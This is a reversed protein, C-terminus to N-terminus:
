LIHLLTRQQHFIRANMDPAGSLVSVWLIWWTSESAFRCFCVLGLFMCLTHSAQCTELLFMAVVLQWLRNLFIYSGMPKALITFFTVFYFGDAAMYQSIILKIRYFLFLQFHCVGHGISVLLIVFWEWIVIIYNACESTVTLLFPLTFFINNTIVMQTNHLFPPTGLFM